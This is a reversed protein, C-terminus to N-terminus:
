TVHNLMRAELQMQLKYINMSASTPTFAMDPAGFNLLAFSNTIVSCSLTSCESAEGDSLSAEGDSLSAISPTDPTSCSVDDIDQTENAIPKIVQM